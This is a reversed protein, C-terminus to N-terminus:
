ELEEDDHGFMAFELEKVIHKLDESKVNNKVTKFEKKNKIYEDNINDLFSQFSLLENTDKHKNYRAFVDHTIEEYLEPEHM